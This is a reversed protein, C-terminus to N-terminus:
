PTPTVTETIIPTPALTETPVATTTLTAILTPTVTVGLTPTVTVTTTITPTATPLIVPPIAAWGVVADLGSKNVVVPAAGNLQVYYGKGSPTVDGVRLIHQVGNQMSITITYAPTALGLISFDSAADPTSLVRLSAFQTVGAEITATAVDTYAVQVETITWGSDSRNMAAHNGLSDRIALAKIDNSAYNFLNTVPQVTPTAPVPQTRELLQPIFVAGALLVVFVVLLIWTSRKMM